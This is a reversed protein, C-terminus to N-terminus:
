VVRLVWVLGPLLKRPRTVAEKKAGSGLSTGSCRVTRILLSMALFLALWVYMCQFSIPWFRVYIGCVLEKGCFGIFVESCTLEGCYLFVFFFSLGDNCVILKFLSDVM